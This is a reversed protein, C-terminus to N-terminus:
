KNIKKTDKLGYNDFAWGSGSLHFSNKSIIKKMEGGCENCVFPEKDFGTWVEIINSCEKCEFEKIL